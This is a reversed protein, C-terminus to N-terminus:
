LQVFSTQALPGSNCIPVDQQLYLVLNKLIKMLCTPCFTEFDPGDRSRSVEGNDEGMEGKGVGRKLSWKRIDGNITFGKAAVSYRPCVGVSDGIMHFQSQTNSIFAFNQENFYYFYTLSEPNGM